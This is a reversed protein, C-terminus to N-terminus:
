TETEETLPMQAVASELAEIRQIVLQIGEKADNLEELVGVEHHALGKDERKANEEVWEAEVLWKVPVLANRVEAIRAMLESPPVITEAERVADVARKKVDDAIVSPVELYLARLSKRLEQLKPRSRKSVLNALQPVGM